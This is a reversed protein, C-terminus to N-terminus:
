RAVLLRMWLLRERHAGDHFVFIQAGELLLSSWVARGSDWRGSAAWEWQGFQIQFWRALYSSPNTPCGGSHLVFTPLHTSLVDREASIM